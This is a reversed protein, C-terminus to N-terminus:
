EHQQGDASFKFAAADVTAKPDSVKYGVGVCVAADNGDYPNEKILTEVLADIYIERAEDFSLDNVDVHVNRKKQVGFISNMVRAAVPGGVFGLAGSAAVSAVAIGVPGIRKALQFPKNLISAETGPVFRKAVSHYQHDGGPQTFESPAALASGALLTLCAATCKM